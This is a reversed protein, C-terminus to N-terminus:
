RQAKDQWEQHCSICAGQLQGVADIGARWDRKGAASVAEETFVDLVKDYALLAQKFGAQDDKAMINWPKEKPAPHTFIVNAGQKVLEGNHRIMGDQMQTLAHSFMNMLDRYSIDAIRMSAVMTEAADNQAFAPVSLVLSATIATAAALRKM